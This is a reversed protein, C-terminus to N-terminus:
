KVGGDEKSIKGRGYIVRCKGSAEEVNLIENDSVEREM